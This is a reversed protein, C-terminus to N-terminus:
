KIWNVSTVVMKSYEKLDLARKKELTKIDYTALQSTEKQEDIAVLLLSRGDPSFTSRYAITEIIKPEDLLKLGNWNDIEFISAKTSDTLALYKGDNSISFSREFDTLNNEFPWIVLGQDELIETNFVYLGEKKLVLLKNNPLFVPNTGKTIFQEAGDLDTVKINWDNEKFDAEKELSLTQFAILNNEISWSPSIKWFEEPSTTIQKQNKKNKDIVYLQSNGNAFTSFVMKKGDASFQSAIFGKAENEKNDDLFNEIKNTELNYSYIGFDEIGGNEKPALNLLIKEASIDTPISNTRTLNTSENKGSEKVILYFFLGTIILLVIILVVVLKEKRLM